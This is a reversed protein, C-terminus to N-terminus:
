AVLNPNSGIVAPDCTRVGSTPETLVASSPRPAAYLAVPPSFDLLRHHLDAVGKGLPNLHVRSPCADSIDVQVPRAV